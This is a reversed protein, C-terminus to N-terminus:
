LSPKDKTDDQKALAKQFRYKIVSDRLEKEIEEQTKQISFKVQGETKHKSNIHLDELGETSTKHEQKEYVLMDDKLDKFILNAEDRRLDTQTTKNKAERVCLNLFDAGCLNSLKCKELFIHPNAHLGFQKRTIEKLRSEGVSVKYLDCFLITSKDAVSNKLTSGIVGSNQVISKELTAGVLFAGDVFCEEKIESGKVIVSNEFGNNMEFTKKDVVGVVDGAEAVFTGKNYDALDFPAFLNKNTILQYGIIKKNEKVPKGLRYRTKPEEFFKKFIAM